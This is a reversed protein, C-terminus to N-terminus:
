TGQVGKTPGLHFIPIFEPTKVQIGMQTHLLNIRHAKHGIKGDQFKIM